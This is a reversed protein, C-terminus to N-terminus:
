KSITGKNQTRFCKNFMAIDIAKPYRATRFGFIASRGNSWATSIASDCKKFCQLLANTTTVLMAVVYCRSIFDVYQVNCLGMSQASNNM